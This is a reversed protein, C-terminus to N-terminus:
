NDSSWVEAIRDSPNTLEHRSWGLFVNLPRFANEPINTACLFLQARFLPSRRDVDLNM